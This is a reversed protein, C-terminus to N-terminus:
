DNNVLTVLCLYLTQEFVCEVFRFRFYYDKTSRRFQLRYRLRGFSGTIAHKDSMITLEPFNKFGFYISISELNNNKTKM